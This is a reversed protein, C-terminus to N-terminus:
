LWIDNGRNSWGERKEAYHQFITSNTTMRIIGLMNAAPRLDV